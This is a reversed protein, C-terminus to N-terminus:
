SARVATGAVRAPNGAVIDGGAVDKTVVAGAGVVAGDGISVGKLIIARAGIFVHKGVRIPRSAAGATQDLARMAPDLPHFDTDVIVAEAGILTQDGIEIGCAAVLTAGSMGVGDGLAIKAGPEVAALTCPHALHLVNSSPRSRLVVNDGLVISARCNRVIVPVGEFRVRKGCVVGRSKVILSAVFGDVARRWLSRPLRCMRGLLSWFWRM